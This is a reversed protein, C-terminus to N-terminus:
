IHQGRQGGKVLLSNSPRAVEDKQEECVGCLWVESVVVCVCWVSVLSIGRGEGVLGGGYM